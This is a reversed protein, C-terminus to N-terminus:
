FLLIEEIDPQTINCGQMADDNGSAYDRQDQITYYQVLRSKLESIHDAEIDYGSDQAFRIDDSMIRKIGDIMQSIRDECQLIVIFGFMAKIVEDTRQLISETTKWSDELEMFAQPAMQERFLTLNKLSMDIDNHIGKMEEVREEFVREIDKTSEQMNQRIGDLNANHVSTDVWLREILERQERLKIKQTIKHDYAKLMNTIEHLSSRDIWADFEESVFEKEDEVSNLAVISFTENVRSLRKVSSLDEIACILIDCVDGLTEDLDVLRYHTEDLTPFNLDNKLLNWITRM